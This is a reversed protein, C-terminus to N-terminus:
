KGGGKGFMEPAELIDGLIDQAFRLGQIRGLNREGENHWIEAMQITTATDIRERIFPSHVALAKERQSFFEILSHILERQDATLGKGTTTKTQM